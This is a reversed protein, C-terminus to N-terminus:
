STVSVSGRYVKLDPHVAFIRMLVVVVVVVVVTLIFIKCNLLFCIFVKSNSM